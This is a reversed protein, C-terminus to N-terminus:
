ISLIREWRKMSDPMGKGGSFGGFMSCETLAVYGDPAQVEKGFFYFGGSIIFIKYDNM